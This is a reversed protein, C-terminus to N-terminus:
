IARLRNHVQGHPTGTRAAWAAVSKSLQGRLDMLRRHDVVDRPEEQAPRGKSRRSVQEAQRQRLLVGVQDADLLGPIGLFDQEDESGVMGGLGFEGGDFLVRDFSADSELAEFVSLQPETITM